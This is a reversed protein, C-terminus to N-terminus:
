LLIDLSIRRSKEKYSIEIYKCIPCYKTPKTWANTKHIAANWRTRILAKRTSIYLLAWHFTKLTMSFMTQFNVEDCSSSSQLKNKRPIKFRTEDSPLSACDEKLNWIRQVCTPSERVMPLKKWYHSTSSHPKGFWSIIDSFYSSTKPFLLLFIPMANKKFTIYVMVSMTFFYWIYINLIAFILIFISWSKYQLFIHIFESFNIFVYQLHMIRVFSLQHM